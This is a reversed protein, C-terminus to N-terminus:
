ACAELRYVVVGGGKIEGDEGCVCVEGKKLVVCCGVKRTRWGIRKKGFFVLFSEGLEGDTWWLLGTFAYIIRHFFIVSHVWSGLGQQKSSDILRTYFLHSLFLNTIFIFFLSSLFFPFVFTRTEWSIYGHRAAESSGRTATVEGRWLSHAPPVQSISLCFLGVVSLLFSQHHLLATNYFSHFSVFPTIYYLLLVVGSM